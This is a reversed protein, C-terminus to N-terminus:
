KYLIRLIFEDTCPTHAAMCRLPPLRANPDISFPYHIISFSACRLLDKLFHRHKCAFKMRWEGNEM